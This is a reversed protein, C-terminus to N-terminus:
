RMEEITSTLRQHFVYVNHFGRRRNREAGRFLIVHYRLYQCVDCPCEKWPSAELVERYREIRTRKGDYLGEYEQLPALVENVTSSGKDFAAMEDLCARELRRAEAQDVEGARIRRTLKPNAAVQPIRIASYTRDLTYYNDREDKFAQRLPSTSDFSTVM